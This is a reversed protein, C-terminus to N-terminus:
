SETATAPPTSLRYLYGRGPHQLRVLLGRYTLVRLRESIKAVTWRHDTKDLRASLYRSSWAKGPDTRITDLIWHDLPVSPGLKSGRVQPPATTETIM